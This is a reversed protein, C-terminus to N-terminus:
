EGPESTLGIAIGRDQGVMSNSFAKPKPWIARAFEDRPMGVAFDEAYEDRFFPLILDLRWGRAIAVEAGIADAGEALATVLRFARPPHQAFQAEISALLRDIAGRVHGLNAQGLRDPRHGTM